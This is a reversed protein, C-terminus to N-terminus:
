SKKELQRVKDLRRMFREAAAFRADLFAKV